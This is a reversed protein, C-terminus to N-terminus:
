SREGGEWYVFFFCLFRVIGKREGVEPLGPSSTFTSFGRKGEGERGKEGKGGSSLILSKGERGLSRERAGGPQKREKEGGGVLHLSFTVHRRRKMREKKEGATSRPRACEAVTLLGGSGEKRKKKRLCGGFASVVNV